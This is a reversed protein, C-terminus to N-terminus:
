FVGKATEVYFLNKPPSLTMVCGEELETGQSCVSARKRWIIETGSLALLCMVHSSLNVISILIERGEFLQTKPKQGLFKNEELGSSLQFNISNPSRLM